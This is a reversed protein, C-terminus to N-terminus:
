DICTNSETEFYFQYTGESKPYFTDEILYQKVHRLNSLGYEQHEDKILDLDTLNLKEPAWGTWNNRGLRQVTHLAPLNGIKPEVREPLKFTSVPLVSRNEVDVVGIKM